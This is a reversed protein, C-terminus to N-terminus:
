CASHPNYGIKINNNRINTELPTEWPRFITVSTPHTNLLEVGNNVHFDITETIGQSIAEDIVNLISHKSTRYKRPPVRVIPLSSGMHFDDLNNTSIPNSNQTFKSSYPKFLESFIQYIDNFQIEIKDDTRKYYGKNRLYASIKPRGGYVSTYKLRLINYDYILHRLTLDLRQYMRIYEDITSQHLINITCIYMIDLKQGPTIKIDKYTKLLMDLNVIISETFGMGHLIAQLTDYSNLIKKFNEKREQKTSRLNSSKNSRCYGADKTLEEFIGNTSRMLKTTKFELFYRNIISRRWKNRLTYAVFKYFDTTGIILTDLKRKAKILSEFQLSSITRTQEDIKRQMKRKLDAPNAKSIEIYDTAQSYLDDISNIYLEITKEIKMM